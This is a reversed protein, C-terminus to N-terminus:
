VQVHSLFLRTRVSLKLKRTWTKDRTSPGVYTTEKPTWIQHRKTKNRARLFNKKNLILPTIECNKFRRNKIEHHITSAPHVPQDNQLDFLFMMKLFIEFVVRYKKEKHSIGKSSKFFIDLVFGNFFSYFYIM